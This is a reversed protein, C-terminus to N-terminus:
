GGTYSMFRLVKEPNENFEHKEPKLDIASRIALELDADSIGSRLLPRLEFSDEQGLCTYITGDVSLRVRNCTECFHQSMPTIFGITIDTGVVNMYRAPGGGPMVGPVLEFSKSLRKKIDQLNVFKSSAARGMDGVPMTEIFRLTFGHKGCFEVMSEVERDNVGEMLVMNVKIPSLGVAKAAMLGDLVKELKGGTLEKFTDANLSDLSVNVRSIGAAYLEEAHKSMRTCNTSLSLDELGPLASLRSALEPLNKRVLPEGGTLRVRRTGMRAFAAVVRELEDFTLWEEPEHFDRFHKPMCYSCRLDCRDTVSIRVYDISRGFKDILAPENM